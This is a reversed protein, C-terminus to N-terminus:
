HFPFREWGKEPTSRKSIPSSPSWYKISFKGTVCLTKNLLSLALSGSETSFWLSGKMKYAFTLQKAVFACFFSIQETWPTAKRSNRSSRIRCHHTNPLRSLWWVVSVMVSSRKPEQRHDASSFLVYKFKQEASNFQRAHCQHYLPSCLQRGLLQGANSEQGICPNYSPAEPAVKHYNACFSPIM